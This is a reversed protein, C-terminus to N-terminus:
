SKGSCPSAPNSGKTIDFFADPHLEALKYLLPNLFGLPKGNPKSLLVDNILSIIGAFTPTSASTGSAGFVGGTVVIQYNTGL